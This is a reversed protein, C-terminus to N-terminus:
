GPLGRATRVPEGHDVRKPTATVGALPTDVITQGRRGGHPGLRGGAGAV